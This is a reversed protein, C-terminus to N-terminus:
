KEADMGIVPQGTDMHVKAQEDIYDFQADRDSHQAGEITKANARPSLGEKCHPIHRM